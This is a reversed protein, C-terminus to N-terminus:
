KSEKWSMIKKHKMSNSKAEIRKSNKSLFHNLNLPSPPFSAFPGSDLSLSHTHLLLAIYLSTSSLLLARSNHCYELLCEISGKKVKSALILFITILLLRSFILIYYAVLLGSNNFNEGYPQGCFGFIHVYLRM